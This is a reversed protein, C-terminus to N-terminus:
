CRKGPGCESQFVAPDAGLLKLNLSGGSLLLEDLAKEVDDTRLVGNEARQIQFQLSRRMLEKIFAASVGHTRRVITEAVDESVTTGPAYLKVLKERGAEDPLPFEIAQDIRGPRSALARELSEPRNTTLIFLIEADEKLGDMENLLKNLASEQWPSEMKDRDRGILDVDELVVISPQYLRALTMYEALNAVQDASILLMTHGTLHRALYHITHTKGTGPPGYFLLGKKVAQAHEKLRQRHQVFQIVNRDLLEVTRAPLIVHEREVPRLKHVLIGTTSGTYSQRVELSLIKGRYTSASRSSTELRQFFEKAIAEGRESKPAALFVQLRPPQCPQQENAALLALKVDGKRFLWVVDGPCRIPEDEGVDVEEYAIPGAFVASVQPSLLNAFDLGFFAIEGKIGIPDVAQQESLFGDIARHVDVRIGAPFRRHTITLEELSLPRFHRVLRRQIPPVNFFGKWLAFGGVVVGVLVGILTFLVILGVWDGTSM